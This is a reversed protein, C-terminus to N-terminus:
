GAREIRLAGRCDRYPAFTAHLKRRQIKGTHTRPIPTAGHLVIKPRADLPMEGLVKSLRARLGDDIEESELYLGIEEGHLNHPFGLAVLRGEMEPLDTLIRREIALPSFKDGDRIIIEKLRGTIFFAPGAATARFFGEDGTRL